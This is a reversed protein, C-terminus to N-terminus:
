GCAICADDDVLLVYTEMWSCYIDDDMPLLHKEMWLCYIDDDMDDDM